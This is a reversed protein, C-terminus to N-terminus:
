KTYRVPNRTWKDLAQERHFSCLFVRSLPFTTELASIQTESYDSMFYSPNWDPNWNKVVELVKLITESVEDETVFEAIPIYDVNTKVVLMIISLCIKNNKLNCGIFM